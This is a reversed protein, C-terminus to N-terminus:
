ATTTWLLGVGVGDIAPAPARYRWTMSSWRDPSGLRGPIQPGKEFEWRYIAGPDTVSTSVGTIWAPRAADEAKWHSEFYGPTIGRHGAPMDTSVRIALMDQHIYEGLSFAPMSAGCRRPRDQNEDTTVDLVVDPYERAFQGLKPALVTTVALRPVLCARVLGAPRDRLESM